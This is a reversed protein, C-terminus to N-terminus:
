NKLFATGSQNFLEYSIFAVCQVNEIKFPIVSHFAICCHVAKLPLDCFFLLGGKNKENFLEFSTRSIPLLINQKESHLTKQRDSIFLM